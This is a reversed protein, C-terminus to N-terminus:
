TSSLDDKELYEFSISRNVFNQKEYLNTDANIDCLMEVVCGLDAVVFSINTFHNRNARGGGIYSM